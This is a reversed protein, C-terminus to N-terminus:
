GSALNASPRPVARLPAEGDIREATEVPRETEDDSQYSTVEADMKIIEFDPDFPMM